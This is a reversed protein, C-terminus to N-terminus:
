TRPSWAPPCAPGAGHQNADLGFRPMPRPLRDRLGDFLRRILPREHRMIQPHIHPNLLPEAALAPNMKRTRVARSFLNRFSSREDALPSWRPQLGFQNRVGQAASFRREEVASCANSLKEAVELATGRYSRTFSGCSLPTRPGRWRRGPQNAALTGWKERLFRALFPAGMTVSDFTEM